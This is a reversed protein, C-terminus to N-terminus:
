LSVEAIKRLIRWPVVTLWVVLVIQISHYCILINPSTNLWNNPSNLAINLAIFSVFCLVYGVMYTLEETEENTLISKIRYQRWLCYFWYAQLFLFSIASLVLFVSVLLGVINYEPYLVFFSLLIRGFSLFVLPLVFTWLQMKWKSAVTGKSLSHLIVASPVLVRASFCVTFLYTAYYHEYTSLYIVATVISVFQPFSLRAIELNPINFSKDLVIDVLMPLASGITVGELVKFEVSTRLIDGLSGTQSINRIRQQYDVLFLPILIVCLTVVCISRFITKPQFADQLFKTIAIILRSGM